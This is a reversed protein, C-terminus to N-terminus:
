KSLKFKTVLFIQALMLSARFAVQTNLNPILAISVLHNVVADTLEYALSARDSLANTKLLSEFIKDVAMFLPKLNADKTEVTLIREVFQLFAQKVMAPPFENSCIMNVIKKVQHKNVRQM